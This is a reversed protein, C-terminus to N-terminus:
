ESRKRKLAKRAAEISRRCDEEYTGGLNRDCLRNADIMLVRLAERLDRERAAVTARYMKCDECKQEARLRAIEDKAAEWEAPSPPLRLAEADFDPHATKSSYWDCAGAELGMAMRKHQELTHGCPRPEGSPPVLVCGCHQGPQSTMPCYFRPEAPAVAPPPKPTM